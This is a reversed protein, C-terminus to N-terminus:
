VWEAGVLRAVRRLMEGHHGEVVCLHHPMGVQVLEEFWERVDVLDTQFLGNTAMLDRRPEITAGELATMLYSGEFRWLRFLTADMGSRITAEVVTPLRNNFQVGLRPAGPSGPADCLQLPAAGTHWITVTERDHELWDTLYVPGIGMSEALRSCVAGDVDGEMAIPFGESVLRALALYPWHGTITPLDPWCRFALADFSEREFLTRFARYYRAQMTLAVELEDGDPFGEGRPIKLARLADLDDHIEDASFGQVIAVLEPTSMHYLQSDLEQSIFVPDAHFDVFGPAHYGVLGLSRGTIADAGHVALIARRLSVQTFSQDPDGYVFELPHGLQRLTATMVHTGVLSNASIMAGSQKETTAWLVLPKKWLRSLLPALRGDSITPQVLIMVTVGAARCSEVSRGLEAQDAINDSPVHVTWPLADLIARIRTGVHAGWAPDFGARKRGLVMLGIVPEIVRDTRNLEM